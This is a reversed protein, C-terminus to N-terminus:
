WTYIHPEEKSLATLKDKFNLCDYAYLFSSDFAVSGIKKVLSFTAIEKQTIHDEICVQSVNRLIYTASSYRPTYICPASQQSQMVNMSSDLFIPPSDICNRWM